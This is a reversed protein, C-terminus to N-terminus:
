QQEKEDQEDFDSIDFGQLEAIAKECARWQQKKRREEAEFDESLYNDVKFYERISPLGKEFWTLFVEMEEVNIPAINRLGISKFYDAVVKNAEEMVDSLILRISRIFGKHLREDEYEVVFELRCCPLSTFQATLLRRLEGNPHLFKKTLKDFLPNIDKKVVVKRIVMRTYNPIIITKGGKYYHLRYEKANNMNWMDVAFEYNNEFHPNRCPQRMFDALLLLTYDQLKDKSKGHHIYQNNDLRVPADLIGMRLADRVHFHPIQCEDDTVVYVEFEYKDGFFGVRAIDWFKAM